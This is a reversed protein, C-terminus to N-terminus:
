ERGVTWERKWMGMELNVGKRATKGMNKKVLGESPPKPKEGKCIEKKRPAIPIACAVHSKSM